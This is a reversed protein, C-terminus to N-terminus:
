EREPLCFTVTTGKNLTSTIKIKGGHAEVIQYSVYLGIGQRWPEKNESTYGKFVKNIEDESMGEGNDSVSIAQGGDVKFVKISIYGSKTHKIANDLLNTIVQIIRAPDAKIKPLTSIELTLKNNNTNNKKFYTNAVESVLNELLVESLSLSLRGQEIAVTDKLDTLIRDIRMVMNSITEQNNRIIKRDIKREDLLEKTDLAHVYIANLPNKIEHSVTTLFLKRSEDYHKLKKNQEQLLIKQKDFEKLHFYLVGGSILSVFSFAFLIDMLVQWENEYHIVLEPHFYAFLCIFSYELIEVISILIAKKGEIMLITFLVALLFISPMGSQHAGSTFFMFPLLIIFIVIITIIYAVQYQMTKQTFVMLFISICLLLFSLFATEWMNTVISIVITFFSIIIGGFALINFLRVRSDLKSSFFTDKINKILLDIM